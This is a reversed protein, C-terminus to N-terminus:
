LALAAAAGGALRCPKRRRKTASSPEAKREAARLKLKTAFSAALLTVDVNARPSTPIGGARAKIANARKNFNM